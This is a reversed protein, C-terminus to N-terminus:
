FGLFSLSAGIIKMILTTFDLFSPRKLSVLIVVLYFHTINFFGLIPSLHYFHATSFHEPPCKLQLM